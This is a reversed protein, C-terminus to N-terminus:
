ILINITEIYNIIVREENPDLKSVVLYEYIIEYLYILLMEKRVNKDLKNIKEFEDIYKNNELVNKLLKKKNKRKSLLKESLIYHFLDFYVPHEKSNEFDYIYLIDKYKKINPQYFDGHSYNYQINKMKINHMVKNSISILKENNTKQQIHKIHNYFESDKLPYIKITKKYLESLFKIHRMNLKGNDQKLKKETSQVFIGNDEDFLVVTPVKASKLKLKKLYNLNEVEKIINNIYITKKAIKAYGITDGFNDFLQLTFRQSIGEMGIYVSSYAYNDIKNLKKLIKKDLSMQTIEEYFFNTNTVKIFFIVVKKYLNSKIRKDNDLYLSNCIINKNIIPIYTNKFRVYNIKDICEKDFINIENM